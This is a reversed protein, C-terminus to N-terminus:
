TSALIHSRLVLVAERLLPPPSPFVMPVLPYPPGVPQAEAIERRNISTGDLRGYFFRDTPALPPSVLITGIFIYERQMASRGRVLGARSKASKLNVERSNQAASKRSPSTDVPPMLIRHSARIERELLASGVLFGQIFRTPAFFAALNNLCVQLSKSLAWAIVTTERNQYHGCNQRESSGLLNTEFVQSLVLFCAVPALVHQVPGTGLV